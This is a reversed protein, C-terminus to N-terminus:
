SIRFFNYQALIAYLGSLLLLIVNKPYCCNSNQMLDGDINYPILVKYQEEYQNGNALIYKDIYKDTNTLIFNRGLLLSCSSTLEVSLGLYLNKLEEKWKTSNESLSLFCAL